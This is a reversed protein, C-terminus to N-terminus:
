MKMHKEIGRNEGYSRYGTAANKKDETKCEKRGFM